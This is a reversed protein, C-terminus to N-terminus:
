CRTPPRRRSAAPSSSRIPSSCTTASSRSATRRARRDTRAFGAWDNEDLRGRDVRDPLPRDMQRLARDDRREVQPRGQVQRPRLLRQRLVLEGGSRARHRHGQRAQLRGGRDGRRDTRVSGRQEQRSQARLRGEDGVSTAYGKGKLLKALTHFTEAGYRLAEAFTPAGIPMVMFEQFDVSNEAHKGGNVINMM